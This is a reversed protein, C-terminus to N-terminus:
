RRQRGFIHVVCTSGSGGINQTMGVEAGSVQRKGAEGRLQQVIEVVQAVGTAGIPNGRAKLGGSTNVPIRGGIETEGEQIMLGGKGKECFGLDEYSIIETITFNDHLEAVDINKPEIGAMKYAQRSAKVVAGLTTIDSRDHLAISDSAVGFGLVYIPTDAYKKAIDASCLIVAAAGDTIPSCDLVHLPDSVIPSALVREITVEFQFQALPNKAANRHNKVSVMALQEPKTGYQIMHRRAILAFAAPLTLGFFSEWEVDMAKAHVSTIEPVSVDTMKEVGGVMVIDYIGSAIAMCALNFAMGSSACASEIRFAPKSKLSLYDALLPAVHEQGVFSGASFNGVFLAQVEDRGINADKLAENAAEVFLDRLQKDWREGFKTMGVGIVAVDRM